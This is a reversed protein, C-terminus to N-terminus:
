RFSIMDIVFVLPSNPPISGQSSSGYALGSPILLLLRGGTNIRPIGLQWGRIYNTLPLNTNGKDFQTGNLLTGTYNINVTSSTTPYTGTGAKIVQYYIGNDDKTANIETKSTDANNAAIYAQIAADDIEAQKGSNSDSDKKCAAFVVMVMALASFVYKLRSM